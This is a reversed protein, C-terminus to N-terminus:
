GSDFARRLAAIKAQNFRQGIVTDAGIADFGHFAGPVVLLETPVGADILRRAYEINEDVFLDIAGVGIFAPPLGSLDERRAPVAAAPVSDTGPEQGLFSRWGFRNREATWVLQGIHDPVPRSSGTRDDLMPYVLMQFLVPVEGRDRATLALLAAHGGGASEGMVAIRNPDLGLAKAHGHMWKLGAYNDEISGLYTTEPALRYDVSVIVCGLTRAMEQLSVTAADASGLVYGGGHTHLIGPRSTGPRANVVLLTVDPAGEPGPTTRMEFPVDSLPERTDWRHARMQPLVEVSLPPFPQQILPAAAARLEPAVPALLAEARAGSGDAAVPSTLALSAALALVLAAWLRGSRVPYADFAERVSTV